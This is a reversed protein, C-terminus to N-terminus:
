MGIRLATILNDAAMVWPVKSGATLVSSLCHVMHLNSSETSMIDTLTVHGHVPLGPILTFFFQMSM